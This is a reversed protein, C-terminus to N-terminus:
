SHTLLFARRGDREGLRGYAIRAAGGGVIALSPATGLGAHTAIVDGPRLDTLESLVIEGLDLTATLRVTAESVALRRAVLPAGVSHGPPSVRDVVARTLLIRLPFGGIRTTIALAGLRPDKQVPPLDSADINSSATHGSGSLRQVLDDLAEEGVYRALAGADETDVGVLAGALASPGNSGVAVSDAYGLWASAEWEFDPCRESTAAITSWDSWWAILHDDVWRLVAAQRSEGIWGIRDAVM